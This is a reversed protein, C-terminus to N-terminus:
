YSNVHEKDAGAECLYRVVELHGGHSAIILPTFGEIDSARDVEANAALLAEVIGLYGHGSATYLASMGNANVYQVSGPAAVALLKRVKAENGRSALTYLAAGQFLGRVERNFQDYAECHKPPAETTGEEMGAVMRNINVKDDPMSADAEELTVEIGKLAVDAPFWGREPQVMDKYEGGGLDMRLVPGPLVLGKVTTRQTFKEIMGAVEFLKGGEGRRLQLVTHIELICWCRSMPTCKSDLLLLIGRCGKSIIALYFPTDQVRGGLNGLDWQNNALTCIRGCWM